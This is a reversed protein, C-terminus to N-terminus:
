LSIKIADRLLASTHGLWGHTYYIDIAGFGFPAGLQRCYGMSPIMFSVCFLPLLFLIPLIFWKMVRARIKKQNYAFSLIIIRVVSVFFPLILICYNMYDGVAILLTFYRNPSLGACLSTVLGSVPINFRLFDTFFFAINAVFYFMLLAYLHGDLTLKTLNSSQSHYGRYVKWMLVITPVIYVFPVTPILITYNLTFRFDIYQSVGHISLFGDQQSM